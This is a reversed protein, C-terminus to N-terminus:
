LRFLPNLRTGYRYQEIPMMAKAATHSDPVTVCPEFNIILIKSKANWGESNTLSDMTNKMADKNECVLFLSLYM